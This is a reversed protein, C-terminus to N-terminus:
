GKASRRYWLSLGFSLGSRLAVNPTLNTSQVTPLVGTKPRLVSGTRHEAQLRRTVVIGVWGKMREPLYILLLVIIRHTGQHRWITLSQSTLLRVRAGDTQCGVGEASFRNKRDQTVPTRTYWQINTSHHTKVTIFIIIFYDLNHILQASM